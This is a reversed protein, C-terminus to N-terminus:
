DNSKPVKMITLQHSYRRAFLVCFYSVVLGAALPQSLHEIVPLLCDKSPLYRPPLIGFLKNVIRLAERTALQDYKQEIIEARIGDYDMNLIKKHSRKNAPRFDAFTYEKGSEARVEELCTFENEPIGNIFVQNLSGRSLYLYRKDQPNWRNVIGYQEAIQISPPLLDNISSFNGKRCRTLLELECYKVYFADPFRAVCEVFFDNLLDIISKLHTQVADPKYNNIEDWAGEIIVRNKEDLYDLRRQANM